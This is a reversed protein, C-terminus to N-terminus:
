ETERSGTRALLVFTVVFALASCAIVWPFPVAKDLRALVIVAPVNALWVLSVMSSVLLDEIVRM